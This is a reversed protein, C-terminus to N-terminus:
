GHALRSRTGARAAARGRWTSRSVPRARRLRSSAALAHIDRIRDAVADKSNVLNM